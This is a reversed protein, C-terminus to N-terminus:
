DSSFWSDIVIGTETEYKIVCINFDFPNKSSKFYSLLIGNDHHDEVIEEFYHQSLMKMRVHDIEVENKSSVTESCMKELTQIRDESLPIFFQDYISFLYTMVFVLSIISIAIIANIKKM